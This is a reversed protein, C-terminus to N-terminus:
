VNEVVVACTLLGSRTKIILTIYYIKSHWCIVYHFHFHFFAFFQFFIQVKGFLQSFQLMEIIITFITTSARQVIRLFKSFLSSSSSILHLILIMRVESSSFDLLISHLTRSVQPSKYSSQILHFVM